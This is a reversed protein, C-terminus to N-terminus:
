EASSWPCKVETVDLMHRDPERRRWFEAGNTVATVVIIEYAINKVGLGVSRVNCMTKM